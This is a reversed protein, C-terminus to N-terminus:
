ILKHRKLVNKAFVQLQEISSERKMTNALDSIIQINGKVYGKSNDIRDISPNSITKGKSVDAGYGLNANSSFYWSSDGVADSVRGM